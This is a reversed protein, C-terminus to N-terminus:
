VVKDWFHPKKACHPCKYYDNRVSIGIIALKIDTLKLFISKIQKHPKRGGEVEM